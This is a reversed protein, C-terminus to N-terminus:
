TTGLGGGIPNTLTMWAVWGTTEGPLLGVYCSGESAILVSDGVNLPPMTVLSLEAKSPAFFVGAPTATMVGAIPVESPVWLALSARGKQRGVVVATGDNAETVQVLGASWDLSARQYVPLAEDNAVDWPKRGRVGRDGYTDPPAVNNTDWGPAIVSARDQPHVGIPLSTDTM